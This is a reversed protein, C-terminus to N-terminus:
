PLKQIIPNFAKSAVLVNDGIKFAESEERESVVKVLEKGVLVSIIGIVGEPQIAIIEGTFQFKGSVSSNVLIDSPKGHRTVKGEDLVILLDALKLTESNDHTVMLTTLKFERHLTLIHAQLKSRIENDLASLPEDLLLIKPQQVLARALAVRQKQGGSLTEPKLFQLDGLEMLEILDTIVSKSGGKPLAFLLNESVSMNPFLAYDQFVYGVQRKQIALNVNLNSDFWAQDLVHIKGKDPQMLGAIMRLLSTKGAGSKGQVATFSGQAFNLDVELHMAGQSSHLAKHLNLEIM